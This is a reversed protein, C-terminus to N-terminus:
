AKKGSRSFSKSRSIPRDAYRLISEDPLIDIQTETQAVGDVFKGNDLRNYCCLLVNRSNESTNQGSAHLLNSHFFLADGPDMEVHVHDLRQMAAEVRTMDAGVQDVNVGHEIRGLRHSGRLVQLCGNAKQCPDLAVFVSMLDPFLYGDRYWYGFDQHWDWAGGTQPRKLTLKAHFFAAPGGLLTEVNGAVRQCRAVDSFMDDQLDTWLAIEATGGASDKRGYVADAVVPDDTVIQNLCRVEKDDFLSKVVVYGDREYAAIQDATLAHTQKTTM